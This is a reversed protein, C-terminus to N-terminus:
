KQDSYTKLIELKHQLIELDIVIEMNPGNNICKSIIDLFEAFPNFEDTLGRLNFAQENEAYVEKIAIYVENKLKLNSVLYPFVSYISNSKSNKSVYKELDEIKQFLFKHKMRNDKSFTNEGTFVITYLINILNNFSPNETYKETYNSLVLQKDKVSEELGKPIVLFYCPNEELKKLMIRNSIEQIEDAFFLKRFRQNVNKFDLKEQLNLFKLVKKTINADLIQSITKNRSSSLSNKKDDDSKISTNNINNLNLQSKISKPEFKYNSKNGANTFLEVSKPHDNLKKNKDNDKKDLLNKSGGVVNISNYNNGFNKEGHNLKPSSNINPKSTPQNSAYKQNKENSTGKLLVPKLKNNGNSNNSVMNNPLGKQNKKVLNDGDSNVKRNANPKTFGQKNDGETKVKELNNVPSHNSKKNSNRDEKNGNKLGNNFSKSKSTELNKRLISKDLSSSEKEKEQNFMINIAVKPSFLAMKDRPNNKSQLFDKKSSRSSSNSRRSMTSMKSSNLDDETNSDFNLQKRKFVIPHPLQAKMDNATLTIEHLKFMLDTVEIEKRHYSEELYALRISFFDMLQQNMTDSINHRSDMLPDIMDGNNLSFIIDNMSGDLEKLEEELNKTEM